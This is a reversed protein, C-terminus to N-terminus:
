RRANYGMVYGAVLLALPDSASGSLLDDPRDRLTRAIEELRTAVDAFVGNTASSSTAFAPAAEAPVEAEAEHVAAATFPDPEAAIVAEADAVFPESAPIVPEDAFGEPAFDVVPAEPAFDAFAEPALDTIAAESAFDAVAAEPAAYADAVFPEETGAFVPEDAAATESESVAEADAAAFTLAGGDLTIDFTPEADAAATPTQFTLEAASEALVPPEVAEPADLSWSSSEAADAQAPEPTAEALEVAPPTAIFGGLDDAPVVDELGDVPAVGAAESRADDTDRDDWALWDPFAEDRAPAVDAPAEAATDRPEPRELWPLDEDEAADAVPAAPADASERVIPTEVDWPMTMRPAGTQPEARPEEAVPAPSPPAPPEAPRAAATPIFPPFVFGDLSDGNSM